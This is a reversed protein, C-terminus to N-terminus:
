AYAASRLVARSVPSHRLGRQNSLYAVTSRAMRAATGEEDEEMLSSYGAVDAVLIAALRRKMRDKGDAARRRLM